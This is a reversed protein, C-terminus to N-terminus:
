KSVGSKKSLTTASKKESHQQTLTTRFAYVSGKRKKGNDETVIPDDFIAAPQM